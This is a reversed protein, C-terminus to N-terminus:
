RTEVVLFGLSECSLTDFISVKADRTVLNVM